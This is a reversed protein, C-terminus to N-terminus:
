SVTEQFTLQMQAKECAPNIWIYEVRDQAGDAHAKREFTKWNLKDYLNNKYGSLVVYGKLNKLAEIMDFHDNDSMEHNYQNTRALTRTSWVYPPDLYFLTETSDHIEFLELAPRNEIVIGQLRETFEKIADWYNVWDHAGTSGSRKCNSRFGTAKGAELVSDSGFGMFSRIIMRRANEVMDDTYERSLEFENRAYPTNRLIAELRTAMQPNQLVRFFNVIQSDLDNYVEAYVRPKQLLVSAAGGFPEVYIRHKPFHSIIWQALKYKGGFYRLAPRKMTEDLDKIDDKEQRM